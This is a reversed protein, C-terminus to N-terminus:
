DLVMFYLIEVYKVNTSKESSFNESKKNRACEVLLVLSKVISEAAKKECLNLAKQRLCLFSFDKKNKVFVASFAERSSLNRGKRRECLLECFVV